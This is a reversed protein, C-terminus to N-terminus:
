AKLIQKANNVIQASPRNALEFWFSFTFGLREFESTSINGDVKVIYECLKRTKTTM